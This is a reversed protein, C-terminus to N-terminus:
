WTPYFFPVWRVCAQGSGPARSQGRSKKTSEKPHDSFWPSLPNYMHHRNYTSGGHNSPKLSSLSAGGNIDWQAVPIIQYNTNLWQYEVFSHHTWGHFSIFFLSQVMALSFYRLFWLTPDTQFYSICPYVVWNHCTSYTFYHNPRHTRPDRPAEYNLCNWIDYYWMDSIGLSKSPAM